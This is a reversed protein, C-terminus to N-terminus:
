LVYIGSASFTATTGPQSAAGFTVTGPGSQVTWQSLLQSGAPLGDDSVEGQLTATGPVSETIQDPGAYVLPPQNADNPCRGAWGWMCATSFKISSGGTITGRAGAWCGTRTGAETGPARRGFNWRLATRAPAWMM